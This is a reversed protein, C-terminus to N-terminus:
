KCIYAPLSKQKFNEKLKKDPLTYHQAFNNIFDTKEFINVIIEEM